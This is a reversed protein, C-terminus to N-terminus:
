HLFAHSFQVSTSPLAMFWECKGEFTAPWVSKSRMLCIGRGEGVVVCASVYVPKSAVSVVGNGVVCAAPPFTQCVLHSRGCPQRVAPVDAFEHRV